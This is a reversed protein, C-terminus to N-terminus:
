GHSNREALQREAWARWETPDEGKDWALKLAQHASRTKSGYVFKTKPPHLPIRLDYQLITRRERLMQPSWRTRTKIYGHSARDAPKAANWFEEFTLGERNTRESLHAGRYHPREQRHRCRLQRM